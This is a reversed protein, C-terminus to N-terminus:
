EGKLNTKLIENTEKATRKLVKALKKNIKVSPMVNGNEILCYYAHTIQIRDAVERQTMFKSKRLEKLKM